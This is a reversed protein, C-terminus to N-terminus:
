EPGRVIRTLFRRQENRRRRGARTAGGRRRIGGPCRRARGAGASPLHRPRAVCHNGRKTAPGHRFPATRELPPSRDLRHFANGVVALEFSGPEATLAEASSLVPRVEAAGAAAAKARVAEAMDPESDVAQVERFWRRLPFALQGTGCALDLLRRHGSVQARRVLDTIMADPYPLRYRDYAAAAGRYLDAAFRVEEAM